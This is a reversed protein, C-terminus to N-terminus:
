GARRMGTLTFLHERASNDPVLESLLEPLPTQSWRVLQEAGYSIPSHPETRRFYEAVQKLATLAENRSRIRVTPVVCQQSVSQEETDDEAEGRVPFGGIAYRVSELCTEIANRINSSHISHEGCREDLATCMRDYEKLVELSNLQLGEYFEQPTESVATQIMEMSVAGDTLRLQREHADLTALQQAQLYDATTFCGVSSNETIPVALIPRILTGDGGVGNLGTLHAVRSAVGEDDPLPYLADWCSEVLERVLRFGDRLGPFGRERVLAEILYAALELDKSQEAIVQPAFELIMRWSPQPSGTHSDDFILKREIARAKAREDKLMYYPSTPSTNKRLDEGAPNKANIPQVLTAFDLTEGSAM